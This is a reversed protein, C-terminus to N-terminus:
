AVFLVAEGLGHLFSLTLITTYIFFNSFIWSESDQYHEIKLAPLLFIAIFPVCMFSGLVMSQIEGIKKMVGTSVLCGIGVGLYITANSYLGLKGFGDDELM